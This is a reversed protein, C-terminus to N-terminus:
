IIILWNNVNFIIILKYFLELKKGYIIKFIIQHYKKNM